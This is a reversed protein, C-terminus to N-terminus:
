MGRLATRKRGARLERPARTASGWRMLELALRVELGRGALQRPLLADARAVRKLVTNRHTHLLAAARSASADQQLYVRVTERLEAEAHVLEGLTAAVFAAARPEDQSALSVVEVDPYTAHRPGDIQRVLLRQAARAELHSDRFGAIGPQTSGVAIRVAPSMTALAQDVADLAPAVGSIWAWLTTTGVSVSFPRGAGLARSLLLSVQELEGHEIAVEDAWLVAATHNRALEFGLRASARPESIPAGDLILSVTERRRALVGGILDDREQEMQRAIAGLVGDVYAFLSRSTVDLVDVLEEGDLGEERACRMWHTWLENQGTRYSTLLGDREMGRRVVDRALDLAEPPVDRGVPRDPQDATATVWRRVNAATSARTRHALVPDAALVPAGALIAECIAEIREDLGDLMREAVAHVRQEVSASPPKWEGV